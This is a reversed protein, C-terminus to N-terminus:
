WNEWIAVRQDNATAAPQAAIEAKLRVVADEAAVERLIDELNWSVILEVQVHQSLEALPPALVAGGRMLLSVM